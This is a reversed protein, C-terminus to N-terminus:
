VKFAVRKWYTKMLWVALLILGILLFFHWAKEIKGVFKEVGSGLIYGLLVGGTSWLSVGIFDFLTFRKHSYSYMGLILPFLIAGSYIFRGGFALLSGRNKVSPALKNIKKKLSIFKELLLSAYNKGMFYWFQDSIIAGAIAVPIAEEISLMGLYCLVGSIFIVTTGELMMGIFVIWLGYVSVFPILEHLIHNM